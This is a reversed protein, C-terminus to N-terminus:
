FILFGYPRVRNLFVALERLFDEELANQSSKLERYGFIAMVLPVSRGEIPYSGTLIQIDGIATQDVILPLLSPIKKGVVLELNPKTFPYM